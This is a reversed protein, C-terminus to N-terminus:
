VEVEINEEHVFWQELGGGAGTMVKDKTVELQTPIEIVAERCSNRYGSGDEAEEMLGAKKILSKLNVGAHFIRERLVGEDDVSAHVELHLIGPGVKYTESESPFLGLVSAKGEYLGAGKEEMDLYQKFTPNDADNKLLGSMLRVRGAVGTLAGRVSTVEVGREVKLRLRFVIQQTLDKPSFSVTMSSDQATFKQFDCLLPSDASRIFPAYPNYDAIMNQVSDPMEPLQAYVEQMSAADDNRFTDLGVITYLTDENSFAAAYYDGTRVMKVSDANWVYHLTNVMRAAMVTYTLGKTGGKIGASVATVESKQEQYSFKSCSVAAVVLLILGVRKMVKRWKIKEEPLGQTSGQM